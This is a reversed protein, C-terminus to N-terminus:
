VLYCSPNYESVNQNTSLVVEKKDYINSQALTNADIEIKSKFDWRIETERMDRSLLAEMAEEDDDGAEINIKMVEEKVEMKDPPANQKVHIKVDGNRAEKEISMQAATEAPKLEGDVLQLEVPEQQEASNLQEVSKLQKDPEQKETLKLKELVDGDPQQVPSLENLTKLQMESKLPQDSLKLQQDVSKLQQDVKKVQQHLAPQYQHSEKANALAVANKRAEQFYEAQDIM